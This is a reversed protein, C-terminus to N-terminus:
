KIKGMKVKDKVLSVIKGLGYLLLLVLDLCYKCGATEITTLRLKELFRTYLEGM